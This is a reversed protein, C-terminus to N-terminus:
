MMDRVQENKILSIPITEYDIGKWHLVTRVRWSCSSRYYSYLTPTEMKDKNV